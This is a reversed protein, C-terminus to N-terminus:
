SNKLDELEKLTREKIKQIIEEPLNKPREKYIWHSNLVSFKNLDVDLGYENVLQQVIRKWVEKKLNTIFNQQEYLIQLSEIFDYIPPMLLLKGDVLQKKSYLWGNNYKAVSRDFSIKEGSFGHSEQTDRPRSHIFGRFSNKLLCFGVYANTEYIFTNVEVGDIYKTVWFFSIGKSKFLELVHESIEEKFYDTNKLEDIKDSDVVIVMDIDSKDTVSYNQGYGMSGGLYVGQAIGKLQSSISEAIKLRKQTEEKTNM